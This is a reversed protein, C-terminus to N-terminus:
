FNFLNVWNKMVIKNSFNQSNLKAQQGYKESKSEDQILFLMKQALDDSNQNEGLLGDEEDSIINRPGNPCDFSIIPLGISLAELLVMPFCETVSSM